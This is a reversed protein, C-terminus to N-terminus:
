TKRLLCNVGHSVSKADLADQLGFGTWFWVYTLLNVRSLQTWTEYVPCQRNHRVIVRCARHTPLRSQSLPLQGMHFNSGSLEKENGQPCLLCTLLYDLLLETVTVTLKNVIVTFFFFSVKTRNLVLRNYTTTCIKYSLGSKPKRLVDCPLNGDCM